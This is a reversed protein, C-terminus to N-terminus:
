LVYEAFLYGLVAGLLLLTLFQGPKIEDNM